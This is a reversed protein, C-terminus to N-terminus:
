EGPRRRVVRSAPRDEEALGKRVLRFWGPATRNPRRVGSQKGTNTPGALEEILKERMDSPLKRAKNYIRRVCNECVRRLVMPRDCGVIWCVFPDKNPDHKTRDIDTRRILYQYKMDGAEEQVKLCIRHHVCIGSTKPVRRCGQIRCTPSGEPLIVWRRSDEERAQREKRAEEADYSGPSYSRPKRASPAKTGDKKPTQLGNGFAGVGPTFSVPKPAPRPEPSARVSPSPSAGGSVANFCRRCLWGEIRRRAVPPASECEECLKPIDASFAEVSM